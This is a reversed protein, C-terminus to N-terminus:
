KKATATAFIYYRTENGLKVESYEYQQGAVDVAMYVRQYGTLSVEPGGSTGAVSGEQFDPSITLKAKLQEFEDKSVPKQDIHYESKTQPQEDKSATNMNKIYFIVGGVIVVAVLASVIIKNM